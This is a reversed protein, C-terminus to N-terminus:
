RRGEWRLRVRQGPALQAVRDIDPTRVVGIVPYGGTVPHDNLFIVPEGNPPVQIAGRVMGESPLEVDVVDPHREVSGGILRVGKRDSKPSVAWEVSGLQHPDAFWDRRPGPTVRVTVVDREPTSVPAHNIRPLPGCADGVPLVMGEALCPPGLGSMTDTSRSGLVPDVDFGGRVALYTRLGAEPLGLVLEAGARLRLLACHAVPRGDVRAATPAGTLAAYLDTHARVRLGGLTVELAAQGPLNGVLRNALEYAGHDVAGARGVGVSMHGVRGDDQLLALVGPQIVELAREGSM